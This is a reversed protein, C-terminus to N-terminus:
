GEGGAVGEALIRPVGARGQRGRGGAGDLNELRGAPEAHEVRPEQQRWPWRLGM